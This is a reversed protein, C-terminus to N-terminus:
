ASQKAMGHNVEATFSNMRLYWAIHNAHKEQNQIKGFYAPWQKM